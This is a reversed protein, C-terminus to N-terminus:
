RLRHAVAPRDWDITETSATLATEQGAASRTGPSAGLTVYLDTVPAVLSAAVRHLVRDKDITEPADRTQETRSPDIADLVEAGFRQYLTPLRAEDVTETPLGFSHNTEGRVDGAEEVANGLHEYLTDVV